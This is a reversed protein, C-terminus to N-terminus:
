KVLKIVIRVNWEKAHAKAIVEKAILQTAQKNSIRKNAMVRVVNRVGTFSYAM